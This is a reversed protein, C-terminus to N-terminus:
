PNTNGTSGVAAGHCRAFARGSYCPCPDNSLSASFREELLNKVAAPPKRQLYLERMMKMPKDVRRFFARYGQCLYNLGLEGDPATAFRNRPCEGNCAFRVECERCYQPLTASKAKGFDRQAQGQVLSLLAEEQVNGLLYRPEVFHDCSYLDGNHELALANGCNEEFVCMGRPAGVWAALASDFMQVFVEGVDRAIWEDFICNLFDGWSKPPVSRESVRGEGEHEVM